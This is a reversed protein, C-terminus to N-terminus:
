EGKSQRTYAAMWEAADSPLGVDISEQALPALIDAAAEVRAKLAAVKRSLLEVAELADAIAAARVAEGRLVDLKLLSSLHDCLPQVNLPVEKLRANEAMETALAADHIEARNEYREMEFAAALLDREMTDDGKGSYDDAAERVRRILRGGVPTELASLRSNWATLAKDRDNVDTIEASCRFCGVSYITSGKWVVTAAGGCFPCPKLKESM